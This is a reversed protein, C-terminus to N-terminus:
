HEHGHAPLTGSAVSLKIQYAGKTVVREGESVGSLLQVNLGDNAGLKVERKQFSEGATQVYVFFNGQEEILSTAPVVLADPIPKSKLYIEVVSGPILDGANDIQFTLPIFPSNASASKGFSLVKGNMQQTNYVKENEATRFNASTISALKDFYKQSVNAQLILNKNKSITALPMGAEVYQGDSVLINKIYGNMGANVNQGSSSHNKNLTNFRNQANEFDLKAQLVDKGSVIKDKALENMREYDAKAKEYNFKAEKYDADINGVALDGGTVTFLHTGSTVSAGAITKVGSFLVIGNAKASIIREDGPASLIQGNTKIVDNFMSKTVPINAFAVKWAQEKLYSIDGGEGEEEHHSSLVAEPNAFVTVSDIVIEDTFKNTSIKFILKAVGSTSPTLKLRFIGPVEPATAKIEDRKGNVEAILTITGETFPKFEEGLETFHAAFRCETGAILPKFEVFLETKDTYITYALAEMEHETSTQEHSHNESSCSFLLFSIVSLQFLIRKM